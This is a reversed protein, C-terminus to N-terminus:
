RKVLNKTFDWVVKDNKILFEGHLFCAKWPSIPPIELEKGCEPCFKLEDYVQHPTTM